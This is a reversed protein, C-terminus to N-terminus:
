GPCFDLINTNVCKKKLNWRNEDPNESTKLTSM